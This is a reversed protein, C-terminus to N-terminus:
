SKYNPHVARGPNITIWASPSAPKISRGRWVRTSRSPNEQRTPPCTTIRFWSWGAQNRISCSYVGVNAGVLQGARQVISNFLTKLDAQTNIELSTEYLATMEKARRTAEMEARKRESVDTLLAISGAFKGDSDFLPNPAIMTWIETGDKRQFRLDYKDAGGAMRQKFHFMAMERVEPRMFDFFHRGLIEEPPYGLMDALRRNVFTARGQSDIRWVGENMTEIMQRYRAESERLAQEAQIRQTIDSYTIAVGYDKLPIPAATVNIWTVDAGDKVIGMEVNSVTRNEKLARVSAYEDTQMPAGDLRIIRWESGAVARRTQEGVSIGLLRESEQNAELIRGAYDSITIGQPFSDFITRYKALSAELEAEACKRRTIDVATGSLYVIMGDQNRIPSISLDVWIISGDKRIYRKEVQVITNEENLLANIMEQTAPRDDPHTLDLTTMQLLEPRPYGFIEVGRNNVELIRSNLDTLTHGITLSEIIVKLRAQSERAAQQARRNETVDRNIGMVLQVMGDPSFSPILRSEFYAPGDSAPYTFELTQSQGTEFVGNLATDWIQVLDDPMGMERNTKGIFSHPDRGTSKHVAPSVYVHRLDRDFVTLIDPSNEILARLQDPSIEEVPMTQREPIAPQVHNWDTMPEASASYQPIPQSNPHM